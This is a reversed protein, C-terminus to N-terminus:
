KGRFFATIQGDALEEIVDAVGAVQPALHALPREARVRGLDAELPVGGDV